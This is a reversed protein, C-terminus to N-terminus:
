RLIKTTGPGALSTALSAGEDILIHALQAASEATYYHVHVSYGRKVLDEPTNYPATYMCWKEYKARGATWTQNRYEERWEQPGSLPQRLDFCSHADPVVNYVLGSPRLKRGWNKLVGIPNMLHEFVHNSFIFDLSQDEVSDLLSANSVLYNEWLKDTSQVDTKGTKKYLRVWEEPRAAEVYRVHVDKTPLIQPNLGPGVEIGVGKILTPVLARSNFKPSIGLVVGGNSVKLGEGSECRVILSFKKLLGISPQWQFIIDHWYRDEDVAASFVAKCFAEQNNVVLIKLFSPSSAKHLFRRASLKRAGSWKWGVSAPYSRLEDIEHANEIRISDGPSLEISQMSFDQRVCTTASWKGSMEVIARDKRTILDILNM